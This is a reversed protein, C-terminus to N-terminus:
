RPGIKAPSAQDSDDFSAGVYRGRSWILQCTQVNRFNDLTIKFTPAVVDRDNLRLGVGTDSIDRLACSFVGRQQGSFLLAGSTTKLRDVQRRETMTTGARRSTDGALRLAISSGAEPFM